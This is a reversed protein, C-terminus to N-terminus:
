PRPTLTKPDRLMVVQDNAAISRRLKEYDKNWRAMSHVEKWDKTVDDSSGNDVGVEQQTSGCAGM